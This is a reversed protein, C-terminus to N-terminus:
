VILALYGQIGGSVSVGTTSATARIRVDSNAPVLIYPDFFLQGTNGSSVGISASSRFVKGSLRIELHADIYVATKQLVSAYFSTIIWYDTSSLSTSAKESQNFGSDVMLHVKSSTDPVGATSTDTEYVYITGAFDTSGNNYARTARALATGLSAQTQGTLTVNQTVFTLDSGSITHGEITVSQTDGSNDSSITTIANSAVYTENSIGSPLTMITTSSTGVADNRGFKLLGKKKEIVSVNVGYTNYIERYAHELKSDGTYKQIKPM